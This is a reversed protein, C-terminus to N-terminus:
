LKLVKGYQRREGGAASTRNFFLFFMEARGANTDDSESSYNIRNTIM